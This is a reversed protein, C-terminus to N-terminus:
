GHPWLVTILAACGSLASGFAVIVAIVWLLSDRHSRIMELVRRQLEAEDRRRAAGITVDLGFSSVGLADALKELEPGRPLKRLFIYRFFM